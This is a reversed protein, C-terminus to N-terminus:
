TAWGTSACDSDPEPRGTPAGARLKESWAANIRDNVMIPLAGFPLAGFSGAMSVGGLALAFADLRSAVKKMM